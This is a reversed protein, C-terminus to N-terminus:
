TPTAMSDMPWTARRTQYTVQSLKTGAFFVRAGKSWLWAIEPGLMKRGAAREIAAAFKPKAVADKLLGAALEAGSFATTRKGTGTKTRASLLALLRNILNPSPEDLDSRLMYATKSSSTGDVNNCALVTSLFAPSKVAVKAATALKKDGGPGAYGALLKDEPIPYPSVSNGRQAVIGALGKAIEEPTPVVVLLEAVEPPLSRSKTGNQLIREITPQIGKPLGADTVFKKVDGRLPKANKTRKDRVTKAAFQLWLTSECLM